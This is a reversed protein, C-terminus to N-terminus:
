HKWFVATKWEHTQYIVNHVKPQVYIRIRLTIRILINNTLMETQLINALLQLLIVNIVLLNCPILCLLLKARLLIPANYLFFSFRVEIFRSILDHRRSKTFSTSCNAVPIPYLYIYAFHIKNKNINGRLAIFSFM